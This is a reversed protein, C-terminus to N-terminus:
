PTSVIRAWRRSTWMRKVPRWFTQSGLGSPGGDGDLKGNCFACTRYM